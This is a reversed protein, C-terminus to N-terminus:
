TQNRKKWEGFHEFNGIKTGKTHDFVYLQVAAVPLLQFVHVNGYSLQFSRSSLLLSFVAVNVQLSRLSLKCSCVNGNMADERSTTKEM